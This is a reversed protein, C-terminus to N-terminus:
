LVAWKDNPKELGAARLAQRLYNYAGDDGLWYVDALWRGFDDAKYTRARLKEANDALWNEAFEKADTGAATHLEPCDIGYLRFRTTWRKTDIVYFGFDIESELELVFTDGDIVRIVNAIRYDYIKEDSM